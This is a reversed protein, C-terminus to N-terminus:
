ALRTPRGKRALRAWSRLPAGILVPTKRLASVDRAGVLLMVSRLEAEIQDFLRLAADRGGSAFAKLVPRAIGGANAGLAIARAVDLGTSVGGTAIITKFRPRQARAFGIAAATPIGWDRLAEGLPRSPGTARETEVAVWSTGGSGSVDVHRV